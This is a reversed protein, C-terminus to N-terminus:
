PEIVEIKYGIGELERRLEAYEEPTAPELEDLMSLTCESHQGVHMYSMCMPGYRVNNRKCADPMIAIVDGGSFKRFAVRTAAIEDHMAFGKM